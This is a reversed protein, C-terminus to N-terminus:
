KSTVLVIIFYNIVPYLALPLGLQKKLGIAKAASTITLGLILTPIHCAIWVRHYFVSWWPGQDVLNSPAVRLGKLVIQQIIVLVLFSLVELVAIDLQYSQM